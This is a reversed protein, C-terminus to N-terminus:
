STTMRSRVTTRAGFREMNAAARAANAPPPYKAFKVANRVKQIDDVMPIIIGAAGMDVAKQIDGETADPVRIFPM